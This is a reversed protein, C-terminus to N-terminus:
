TVRRFRGGTGDHLVDSDDFRSPHRVIRGEILYIVDEAINTAMDAMRELQRTVYELRLLPAATETSNDIADAIQRGLKRRMDDVFRDDDIVENALKTSRHMLAELSKKVMSQSRKAMQHCGTVREFGDWDDVKSVARAINEALDAIRELADNIKLVAVVFRLEDGSRHKSELFSICQEEIEVEMRDIQEDEQVVAKALYKDQKALATISRMISSEVMRGLKLLKKQIEDTPKPTM